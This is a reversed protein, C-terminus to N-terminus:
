KEGFANYVFCKGEKLEGKIGTANDIDYEYRDARNDYLSANAYYNFSMANQLRRIPGSIDGGGIFKIDLQVQALLPQVGIGESNLDWNVGDNYDYNISLNEIIITQNYFDGIRLVCFPPRGFALNQATVLHGYEANGLHEIQTLTDGQRMCQQLFTLRGNFGEPTMSHFAPDFYQLKKTLEKFIIPDKSELKKFFYYEQDYRKINKENNREKPITINGNEQIKLIEKDYQRWGRDDLNPDINYWLKSNFEYLQYNTGNIMVTKDTKNYCVSQTVNNLNNEETQTKLEIILEARRNKVEKERNFDSDEEGNSPQTEIDINTTTIINSFLTKFAKARQTALNENRKSGETSGGTRKSSYGISKVNDIILQKNQIKTFIEKLENYDGNNTLQYKEKLFNLLNTQKKYVEMLVCCLYLFSYNKEDVNSQQTIFGSIDKNYAFNGEVKLKGNCQQTITNINKENKDYDQNYDIRFFRGNNNVDILKNNLGVNQQPILFEDEYNKTQVGMLYGTSLDDNFGENKLGEKLVSDDLLDWDSTFTNDSKRRKIGGATGMLTYKMSSIKNVVNDFTNNDYHGSYNNPFFWYFKLKSPTQQQVNPTQQTNNETIYNINESKYEDELPTPETASQLTEKDCGAFYRHVDNDKINTNSSNHSGFVYDIISPHDVVMLFSLRGSRTTDQYTYVEEGRGIFSHPQWKANTTENFSLGYPPFWMIRGGNPGRQEWSLCKEFAYPNYDKWALNEISFMCQRTHINGSKKKMPAFNIMGDSMVSKDYGSNQDNRWGWNSGDKFNDGWNNVSKIKDNSFPRITKCLNDYQYHHTWVRCYPNKYGNVDYSTGNKEADKTLLNRGHSEGFQSRIQGNYKINEIGNETNTGFRSIITNIKNENFLKQTKYLISNLECNVNWKNDFDGGREKPYYNKKNDYIDNQQTTIIGCKEKDSVQKAFELYNCGEFVKNETIFPAYTDSSGNLPISQGIQTVIYDKAFKNLELSHKLAETNYIIFKSHSDISYSSIVDLISDTYNRVSKKIDFVGNILNVMSSIPSLSYNNNIERCNSM